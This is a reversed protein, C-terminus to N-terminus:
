SVEIEPKGIMGLFNMSALNLCSVGNVTVQKGIKSFHITITM